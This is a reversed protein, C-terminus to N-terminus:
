SPQDLSVVLEMPAVFGSIVSFARMVAQEGVFGVIVHVWDRDVDTTRDRESPYVAGTPHSHYLAGVPAGSSDARRLAQVLAAPDMIYGDPSAAVNAVPYVHTVVGDSVGLVGCAENPLTMAVETLIREQLDAPIRLGAMTM